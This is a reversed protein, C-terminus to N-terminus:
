GKAIGNFKRWQYYEISANNPNWGEDAALEKVTKSTPLEGTEARYSDLADWIARCKGGVSPRKVGNQEPRDKEIKLGNGTPTSTPAVYAGRDAGWEHGCGMCSNEIQQQGAEWLTVGGMNAAEDDPTLHGNSLHIGCGPCMQQGVSQANHLETLTALNAKRPIAVGNETLNAIFQAKTFEVM